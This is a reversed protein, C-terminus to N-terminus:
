KASTFICLDDATEEGRVSLELGRRERMRRQSFRPAGPQDKPWGGV